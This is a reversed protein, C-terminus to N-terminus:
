VEAFIRIMGLDGRKYGERPAQSKVDIMRCSEVKALSMLRWQSGSQDHSQGAELLWVRMVPKAKTSMGIAHVEVLRDLGDYRVDLVVGTLLATLATEAVELAHDDLDSLDIEVGKEHPPSQQRCSSLNVM